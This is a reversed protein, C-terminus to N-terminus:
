KGGQWHARQIDMHVETRSNRGLGVVQRGTEQFGCAAFARQARHNHGFTTLRVRELPPQHLEFAFHLLARVAERGYGQGWLPRAVMVGLTATTARFPASPRLDYLEANGIVQGQEDLVAFGYRGGAAEDDLMMRRFLWEPLRIPKADNWDALERDRFFQYIAHWEPRGIQTLPVLRVRGFQVEDSRPVPM